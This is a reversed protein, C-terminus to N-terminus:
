NSFDFEIIGQRLRHYNIQSNSPSLTIAKHKINKNKIANHKTKTSQQRPSLVAAEDENNAATSETSCSREIQQNLVAAANKGTCPQISM